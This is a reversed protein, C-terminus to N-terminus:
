ARSSTSAVYRSVSSEFRGDATRPREGFEIALAQKLSARERRQISPRHRLQNVRVGAIPRRGLQVLDDILPGLAVREEDHLHQAVERLRARDAVVARLGVDCSPRSATGSLTLSTM